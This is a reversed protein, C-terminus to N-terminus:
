ASSEARFDTHFEGNGPTRAPVGCCPSGHGETSNISFAHVLLLPKQLGRGFKWSHHTRHSPHAPLAAAPSKVSPAQLPPVLEARHHPKALLCHGTQRSRTARSPSPQGFCGDSQLSQRLEDRIYSPVIETVCTLRYAYNPRGSPESAGNQLTLGLWYCQGRCLNQWPRHLRRRNRRQCAPVELRRKRGLFLGKWQESNASWPSRERFAARHLCKCQTM